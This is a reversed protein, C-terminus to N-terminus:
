YGKKNCREKIQLNILQEIADKIDIFVFLFSLYILYDEKLYVGAIFAIFIGLNQIM